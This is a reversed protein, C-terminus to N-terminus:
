FSPNFANEIHEISYTKGHQTIAVVDFQSEGDFNYTAIWAEAANILHQEKNRNISDRASQAGNAFRLKVEVFVMKNDKKAVIDIELHYYRWNCVLIQYGKRALYKSALTEGINGKDTNNM